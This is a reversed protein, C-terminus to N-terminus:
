GQAAIIVFVACEVLQNTAGLCDGTYGGVRRSYYHGTAIVIAVAAAAAVAVSRVGLLLLVTAAVMTGVVVVRRTAALGLHSEIGVGARAYSLVHMLPLSSWRALVHGGILIAAISEPNAASLSGVKLLTAFLLALTGFSGIRSDRMIALTQEKNWGGGFGDAADALGDEHLAGTAIATLAVTMTAAVLPSVVASALRFCLLAFVGLFMGILPFFALAWRPSQNVVASPWPVRVRTLFTMAILFSGALDRVADKSRSVIGFVM